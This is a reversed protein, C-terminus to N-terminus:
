LVTNWIGLAKEFHNIADGYLELDRYLIGLNISVIAIRPDNEGYLARYSTLAQQYFDLAKDKDTQSYALGLDNYNAALFAARDKAVKQRIGLARYLHEQAQSYKGQSMYVLGLYSLAAATEPSDIKGASELEALGRRLSEE